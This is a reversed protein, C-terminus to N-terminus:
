RGRSNPIPLVVSAKSVTMVIPPLMRQPMKLTPNVIQIIFENGLPARLANMKLRVKQSRMAKVRVLIAM